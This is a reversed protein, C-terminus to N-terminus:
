ISFSVLPVGATVPCLESSDMPTVVRIYRNSLYSEFLRFTRDRFGISWLHALLGRWWVSDFAGKIDLAVLQAEACQNIAATITSALSVGADSASSGRM